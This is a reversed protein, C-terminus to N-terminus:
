GKPVLSNFRPITRWDVVKTTTGGSVRTECKDAVAVLRLILDIPQPQDGRLQDVSTTDRVRKEVDATPPGIWIRTFAHHLAVVIAGVERPWQLRQDIFKYCHGACVSLVKM